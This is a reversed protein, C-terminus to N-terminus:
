PRRGNRPRAGERKVGKVRMVAGRMGEGDLSTVGGLRTEKRRRAVLDDAKTRRAGHILKATSKGHVAGSAREKEQRRMELHRQKSRLGLLMKLPMKHNPAEVKAGLSALRKAEWVRKDRGEFASAGMDLVEQRAKVFDKRRIREESQEALRSAKASLEQPSPPLMFPASSSFLLTAKHM